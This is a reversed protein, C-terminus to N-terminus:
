SRETERLEGLRESLENLRRELRPSLREESLDEELAELWSIISNPGTVTQRHYQMCILAVTYARIEALIRRTGDTKISPDYKEKLYELRRSVTDMHRSMQRLIPRGNDLQEVNIGLEEDFRVVTEVASM